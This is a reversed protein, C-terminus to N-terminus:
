LEFATGAYDNNLAIGSYIEISPIDIIQINM